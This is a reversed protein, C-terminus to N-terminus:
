IGFKGKAPALIKNRKTKTFKLFNIKKDQERISGLQKSKDDMVIDDEFANAKNDFSSKFKGVDSNINDSANQVGDASVIKIEDKEIQEPTKKTALPAAQDSSKTFKIDLKEDNATPKNQKNKDM